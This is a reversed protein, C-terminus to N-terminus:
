FDLKLTSIDDNEDVIKYGRKLYMSLLGRYAKQIDYVETSPLALMGYFGKQKFYNIAYDLLQKAIGQNRYDPHIVFCITLAYKKDNFSEIESSLRKYNSAAQANLWGIPKDQDFILFGNM